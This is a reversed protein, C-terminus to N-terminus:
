SQYEMLDIVVTKENLLDLADSLDRIRNLIRQQQPGPASQVELQMRLIVLKISESAMELMQNSHMRM